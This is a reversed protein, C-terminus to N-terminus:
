RSSNQPSLLSGLGKGAFFGSFNFSVVDFCLVLAMIPDYEVEEVGFSDGIMVPQWGASYMMDVCRLCQKEFDFLEEKSISALAKPILETVAAMRKQTVEELAKAAAKEDEGDDVVPAFDIFVDQINDILPMVKEIVFKLLYSGDLANMKRIQFVKEEGDIEHKVQKAIERM